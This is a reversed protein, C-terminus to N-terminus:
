LVDLNECVIGRREWGWQTGALISVDEFNKGDSIFVDIRKSRMVDFLEAM